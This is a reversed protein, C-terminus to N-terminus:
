GLEAITVASGGAQPDAERFTVCYPSTALFEQVARRLAGTGVGHVVRIESRGARVARDLFAGLASVADRARQGVLVIEGPAADADPRDVQVAVRDRPAPHEDVVRLQSSPVEFKLGGRAIRAREPGLELVEGRIGRGIVEVTDGLRPARGAPPPAIEAEHM